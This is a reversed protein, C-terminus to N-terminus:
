DENKEKEKLYNKINEIEENLRNYHEVLRNLTEQHTKIFVSLMDTVKHNTGILSNIRAENDEGGFLKDFFGM